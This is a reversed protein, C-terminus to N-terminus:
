TLNREREKKQTTHRIKIRSVFLKDTVHGAVGYKATQPKNKWKQFLIKPHLIIKIQHCKKEKKRKTKKEQIIKLNKDLFSTGAWTM